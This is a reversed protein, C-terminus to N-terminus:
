NASGTNNLKTIKEFKGDILSLLHSVDYREGGQTVLASLMIKVRNSPNTETDDEVNVVVVDYYRGLYRELTTRISEKLRPIDNGAQQILISLNAISGNYLYSQNADSAFFHAILTDTKEVISYILGKASLTPVPKVNNM